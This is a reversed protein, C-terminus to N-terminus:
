RGRMKSKAGRRRRHEGFFEECCEEDDRCDAGTTGGHLDLLVTDEQADIVIELFALIGGGHHFFALVEATVEQVLFDARYESM